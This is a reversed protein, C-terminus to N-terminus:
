YTIILIEKNYIFSQIWENRRRHAVCSLNMLKNNMVQFMLSENILKIIKSTLIFNLQLYNYVIFQNM